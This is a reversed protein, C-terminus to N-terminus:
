TILIQKTKKKIVNKLWKRDLTEQNKTSWCRLSSFIENSNKRKQKIKERRHPEQKEQHYTYANPKEKSQEELSQRVHFRRAFISFIPLLLLLLFLSLLLFIV